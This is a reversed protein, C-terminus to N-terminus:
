GGSDLRPFGIQPPRMKLPLADALELLERLAEGRRESSVGIWQSAARAEDSVAFEATMASDVDMAAAATAGGSDPAPKAEARRLRRLGDPDGAGERREQRGLADLLLRRLMPDLEDGKALRRLTEAAARDVPEPAVPAGARLAAERLEEADPPTAAESRKRAREIAAGDLVRFSALTRSRPGAPTARSERVEFSGRRNATVYAM